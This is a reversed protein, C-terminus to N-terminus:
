TGGEEKVGELFHTVEEVAAAVTCQEPLKLRLGSYSDELTIRRRPPQREGAAGPAKALEAALLHGYHLHSDRARGRREVLGLHVRLLNALRGTATKVKGVDPDPLRAALSAWPLLADGRHLNGQLDFLAAVLHSMYRRSLSPELALFWEQDFLHNNYEILWKRFPIELKELGPLIRELTENKTGVDGSLWQMFVFRVAFSFDGANM